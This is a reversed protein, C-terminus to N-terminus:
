VRLNNDKALKSIVASFKDKLEKLDSSLAYDTEKTITLRVIETWSLHPYRKKVENYVDEHINIM